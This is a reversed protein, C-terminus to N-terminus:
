TPRVCRFSSIANASTPTLQPYSGPFLTEIQQQFNADKFFQWVGSKVKISSIQDNFEWGVAAWGNTTSWRAGKFHTDEYLQVRCGKVQDKLEQRVWTAPEAHAASFMSSVAAACVANGVRRLSIM